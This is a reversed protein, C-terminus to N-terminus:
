VREELVAYYLEPTKGNKKDEPFLKQQNKRWEEPNMNYVFQVDVPRCDQLKIWTGKSRWRGLNSLDTAVEVPTGDLTGEIGENWVNSYRAQGSDYGQLIKADNIREKIRRFYDIVFARFADMARGKTRPKYGVVALDIDRVRSPDTHRLVGGVGAILFPAIGKSNLYQVLDKATAKVIDQEAQTLLAYFIGSEQELQGSLHSVSSEGM